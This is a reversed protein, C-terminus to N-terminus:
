SQEKPAVEEAHFGTIHEYKEYLKMLAHTKSKAEVTCSLRHTLGIAGLHRGAFKCFFTKM